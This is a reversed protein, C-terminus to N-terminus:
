TERAEKMALRRSHAYSNKMPGDEHEWSLSDMRSHKDFSWILFGRTSINVLYIEDGRFISQETAMKDCFDQLSFLEEWRTLRQVAAGGMPADQVTRASLDAVQLSPVHQRMIWLLRYRELLIREIISGPELAQWRTQLNTFHRTM